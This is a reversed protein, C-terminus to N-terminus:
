CGQWQFFTISYLHFHSKLYASVQAFLVINLDYGYYQYLDFSQFDAVQLVIQRM